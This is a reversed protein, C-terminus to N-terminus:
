ATLKITCCQGCLDLGSIYSLLLIFAGPKPAINLPLNVDHPLLLIISDHVNIHMTLSLKKRSHTM